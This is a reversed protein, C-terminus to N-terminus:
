QSWTNMHAHAFPTRPFCWVFSQFYHLLADSLVVRDISFWLPRSGGLSIAPNLCYVTFQFCCAVKLSGDENLFTKAGLFDQAQRRRSKPGASISYFQFVFLHLSLSVSLFLHITPSLSIHLYVCLMFSPSFLRYSLMYILTLFNCILEWSRVSIIVTIYVLLCLPSSTPFTGDYGDDMRARGWGPQYKWRHWKWILVFWGRTSPLWPCRTRELTHSHFRNNFIIMILPIATSSLIQGYKFSSRRM